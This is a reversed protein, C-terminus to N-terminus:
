CQCRCHNRNRRSTWVGSAIAAPSSSLPPRGHTRHCLYFCQCELSICEGPSLSRTMAGELNLVSGLQRLLIRIRPLLLAKGSAVDCLATWICKESSRLVPCSTGGLGQWTKNFLRTLKPLGQALDFAGLFSVISEYRQDDFTVPSVTCDSLCGSCNTPATQLRSGDENVLLVPGM